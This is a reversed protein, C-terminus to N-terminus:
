YGGILMHVANMIMTHESALSTVFPGCERRSIAAAFQPVMAYGQGEIEFVAPPLWNNGGVRQRAGQALRVAWSRRRDCFRGHRCERTM